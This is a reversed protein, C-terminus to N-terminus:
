IVLCRSSFVYLTGVLFFFTQQNEKKRQKGNSQSKNNKKKKQKAEWTDVANNYKNDM